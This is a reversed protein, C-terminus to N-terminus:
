KKEESAPTQETDDVPVYLKKTRKEGGSSTNDTPAPLNRADVDKEYMWKEDEWHLADYTMDPGIMEGPADLRGDPASLHDFIILKKKENYNLKMSVSSSYTFIMRNQIKKINQFVPTGFTPEGKTFKVIELVKKTTKADYGKWGILTYLNNGNKRTKIIRYYLAGYWNHKKCTKKLMLEDEYTSDRLSSVKFIKDGDDKYQMACEYQYKTNGETAVFWSYIRLKKDPSLIISINLLSDFPDEFTNEIRLLGPLTDRLISNSWLKISDNKSKVISDSLCKIYFVSNKFANSYRYHQSNPSQAKVSVAQVFLVVVILVTKSIKM